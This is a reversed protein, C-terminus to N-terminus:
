GTKVEVGQDLTFFWLIKQAVPKGTIEALARGYTIMQNQHEEAKKELSGEPIKDSKFDLIVLEGQENEYFCDVVGQLLLSEKTDIGFFEGEVLLSFKFEQQCYASKRAAQGWESELFAVVSEAPIVQCQASTLKNEAELQTMKRQIAEVSCDMHPSIELYQMLLHIATGRQAASLEGSEVMFSPERKKGRKKPVPVFETLELEEEQNELLKRGKTQTATFKSPTSVAVKHPYVWRYRGRYYDELPHNEDFEAQEEESNDTGAGLLVEAGTLYEYTWTSTLGPEYGFDEQWLGQPCAKQLLGYGEPRTLFYSLVIQGLSKKGLLMTPRLPRTVDLLLDEVDKMGKKLVISLILKEKARTMAVYLLRLEESAMEELLKRDIAQRAVTSFRVSEERDLGQPGMGFKQHFLVPRRNDQVNFEKSLGAVFVVPKELGKANHISLFSVAEQERQLDPMKPLKEEKELQNLKQMCAFLSHCGSRELESIVRHFELLAAQRADSPPIDGYIGLINLDEYLHWLLESPSKERSLLRYRELKGLFDDRKEEFGGELKAKKMGQYFHGSGGKRLIALEDATFCFLPSGLVSILPIDQLPNDVIKLLSWAVQVEIGDFLNGGGLNGVPICEMGFAIQYPGTLVNKSRLLVMFDGFRVPRLSIGDEATVLFEDDVMQRIKQALWSAELLYHEQEDAGEILYLETNYDNKAGPAPFNGGGTLMGDKKYDVDGFEPTMVASFFDNCSYLVEKRSRFNDSLLMVEVNRQNGYTGHYKGLFIGPDALRFRYISQKVDGVMLLNRGGDSVADFIVNQVTNTDQYEDVMLEAVQKSVTLATETPNGQSDVLLKVTIHELDNFDLVNKREKELQYREAFSKVVDMLVMMPKQVFIMDEILNGSSDKLGLKELNKKIKTRCDSIYERLEQDFVDKKESFGGAKEFSIKQNEFVEDWGIESQPDLANQLLKSLKELQALTSLSTDGLKEKVLPDGEAMEIMKTLIYHNKEVKQQFDALLIKGWPTKELSDGTELSGWLIKQEELWGLPDPHSQINHHIDTIIKKLIGDDRGASMVDVLDFFDSKEEGYWEDLVEQLVEQQLLGAEETTIQQFGPNMGLIHAYDRILNGCFSHITSIKAQYVLTMQSRIHRKCASSVEPNQEAEELRDSLEQAIREKLEAAAAKTFTIIVFDQINRGVGSLPAVKQLLREVLVRTKGSGAAAAVLLEGGQHDVVAQQQKTLAFAM